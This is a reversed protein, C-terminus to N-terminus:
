PKKIRTKSILLSGNIQDLHHKMHRVYDELIWGLSHTKDNILTSLEHLIEKKIEPRM